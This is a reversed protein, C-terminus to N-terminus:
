AKDEREHEELAKDALYDDHEPSEKSDDIQKRITDRLERDEHKHDHFEAM